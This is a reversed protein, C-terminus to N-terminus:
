QVRTQGPLSLKAPGDKTGEEGYDERTADVIPELIDRTVIGSIRQVNLMTNPGELTWLPAQPDETDVEFTFKRPYSFALGDIEFRRTPNVKIRMPIPEGDIMAVFGEGETAEIKEKGIQVEFSLRPEFHHDIREPFRDQPALAALSQLGRFCLALTLIRLTM